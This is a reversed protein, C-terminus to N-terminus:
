RRILGKKVAIVAAATRDEAALKDMIREITKAVHRVSKSLEEAIERNSNGLAVLRLTKQEDTDLTDSRSNEMSDDEALM